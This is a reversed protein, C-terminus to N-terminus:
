IWGYEAPHHVTKYKADHKITETWAAKVLVKEDWAPTVVVTEDYADRVLETKYYGETVLVQRDEYVPGTYYFHGNVASHHGMENLDSTEFDCQDCYHKVGVKVKETKYVPDVWVQKYEADHHVTKYTADHHVTKYEAAHEIKETWAAKVLVKEDWAEKVVGWKKAPEDKGSSSSSSSSSSSGSSTSGSPKGSSDGASPATPKAPAQDVKDSAPKKSSSSSSSSSSTSASAQKAEILSRSAERQAEPLAEILAATGEADALDVSTLSMEVKAADAGTASVIFQVAQPVLWTTSGDASTPISTLSMAYVGEALKLDFDEGPVADGEASTEGDANVVAYGFSGDGEKWGEAALSVTVSKEKSVANKASQVASQVAPVPAEGGSFTGSAWAVGLGLAAVVAVAAGAAVLARRRRAPGEASGDDTRGESFDVWDTGAHEVQCAGSDEDIVSDGPASEGPVPADSGGEQACEAAAAGDECADAADVDSPADLCEAARGEVTSVIHGEAGIEEAGDPRKGDGLMDEAM